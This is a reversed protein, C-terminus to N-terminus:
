HAPTRLAERDLILTARGPALERPTPPGVQLPSIEM